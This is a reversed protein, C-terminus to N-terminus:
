LGLSKVIVLLLIILGGCAVFAKTYPTWMQIELSVDRDVRDLIKTEFDNFNKFEMKHLHIQRGDRFKLLLGPYSGFQNDFSKLNFSEIDNFSYQNKILGFFTGVTMIDRELELTKMNKLILGLFGIGIWLFLSSVVVLMGSIKNEFTILLLGFSLIVLSFAIGLFGLLRQKINVRGKM